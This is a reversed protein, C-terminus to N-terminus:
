FRFIHMRYRRLLPYTISKNSTCGTGGCVLVHHKGAAFLEGKKAQIANLENVTKM